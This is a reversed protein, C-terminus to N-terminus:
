RWPPFCVEARPDPNLGQTVILGRLNLGQTIHPGVRPM